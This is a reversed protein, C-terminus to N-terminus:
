GPTKVGKSLMELAKAIRNQRTEEKQCQASFVWAIGDIQWASGRFAVHFHSSNRCFCADWGAASEHRL